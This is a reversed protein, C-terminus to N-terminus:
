SRVESFRAQMAERVNDAYLQADQFEEVSPVYPPMVIVQLSHLYHSLFQEAWEADNTKSTGGGREVYNTAEPTWRGTYRLLVPRVPVGSVFAGKRFPLLDQQTSTTGEPFILLSRDGPKWNTCHGKIAELTAGRSNADERKVFITDMDAALRGVVPVHRVGAKAVFKPAGLSNMVVPADLYSIHNCVMIPTTRMNKRDGDAVPDYHVTPFIGNSAMWVSLGTRFALSDAVSKEKHVLKSVTTEVRGLGYGAGMMLGGFVNLAAKPLGKLVVMLKGQRGKSSAVDWEPPDDSAAHVEHLAKRLEQQDATLGTSDDISPGCSPGDEGDAATHADQQKLITDAAEPHQAAADMFQLVMAQSLSRDNSHCAIAEETHSAFAAEVAEPPTGDQEAVKVAIASALMSAAITAEDVPTMVLQEEDDHVATDTRAISIPQSSGAESQASSRRFESLLLSTARSLSRRRSVHSGESEVASMGCRIHRLFFRV